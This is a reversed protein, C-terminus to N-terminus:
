QAAARSNADKTAADDQPSLGLITRTAATVDDQRMLSEGILFARAGARTMRELDAHSYLGSEAVLLRNPDVQSALGEGVDLSFPALVRHGSGSVVTSIIPCPLRRGRRRFMRPHQARGRGRARRTFSFAMAVCASNNLSYIM